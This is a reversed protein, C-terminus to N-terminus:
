NYTQTKNKHNVFSHVNTVCMGIGKLARNKRSTTKRRSDPHPPYGTLLAATSGKPQIPNGPPIDRAGDAANSGAAAAPASLSQAGPAPPSAEHGPLNGSQFEQGGGVGLSPDSPLVNDGTAVADSVRAKTRSRADRRIRYWYNAKALKARTSEAAEAGGQPGAYYFTQRRQKRVRHPGGGRKM